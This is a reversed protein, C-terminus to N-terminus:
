AGVDRMWVWIFYDMSFCAHFKSPMCGFTFLNSSMQGGHGHMGRVVLSFGWCVSVNDPQLTVRLGIKRLGAENLKNLNPTLAICTATALTEAVRSLDMPEWRSSGSENQIFFVQTWRIALREGVYDTTNHVHVSEVGEM